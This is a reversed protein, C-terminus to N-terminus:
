SASRVGVAFTLRVEWRVKRHHQVEMGMEASEMRRRALMLPAAGALHQEHAPANAGTEQAVLLTGLPQSLAEAVARAKTLGNSTACALLRAQEKADNPYQWELRELTMQKSASIVGLVGAIAELGTLRIRLQYVAASSKSFIGSQVAVRVGTLDICSADVGEAALAAVLAALEKAKILAARGTFFSSGEISAHLHVGTAAQDEEHEGLVEIRNREDPM